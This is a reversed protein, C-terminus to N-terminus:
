SGGGETDRGALDVVLRQFEAWQEAKFHVSLQVGELSGTLIVHGTDFEDVTWRGSRSLDATRRETIM